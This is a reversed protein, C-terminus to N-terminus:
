RLKQLRYIKVDGYPSVTAVQVYGPEAPKVMVNQAADLGYPSYSGAHRAILGGSEMREYSVYDAQHRGYPNDWTILLGGCPFVEVRMQEINSVYIGAFDAQDMGAQNCAAHAPSPTVFFALAAVIAFLYRM